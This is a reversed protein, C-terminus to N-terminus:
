NHSIKIWKKAAPDFRKVPKGPVGVIVTYDDYKGRVVANAGVICRRGLITGPMIAAGMGIFCGEGIITDHVSIPQDLVHKDLNDYHHDINTIFTNALILCNDAIILSGASTIHVNQSIVVNNGIHVTGENQTELRLHPFIRVRTGLFVNKIGKLFIPSGLYSPMGCSGFFPAYIVLRIGWIIKKIM